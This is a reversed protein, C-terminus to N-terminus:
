PCPLDREENGRRVTLDCQEPHRQARVLRQPLAAEGNITTILDGKKLREGHTERVYLGSPMSALAAAERESVGPNLFRVRAMQQVEAELGENGSPPPLYLVEPAPRSANSPPERSGLEAIAERILTEFLRTLEPTPDSDEPPRAFPDVQERAILELVREARQPALVELHAVWTWEEHAQVRVGGRMDSREERSSAVQKEAWPRFVLTEHPPLAEDRLRVLLDTAAWAHDDDPRLIKFEGPGLLALRDGQSALLEGIIRQSLLAGREPPEDWRFGVPYIALASVRLDRPLHVEKQIAAHCGALLASALLLSRFTV